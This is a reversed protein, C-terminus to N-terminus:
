KLGLGCWDTHSIRRGGFDPNICKSCGHGRCKMCGMNGSPKKLIDRKMGPRKMVQSKMVPSKMVSSKMSSGMGPKKMVPDRLDEGDDDNDNDPEEADNDTDDHKVKKESKMCAAQESRKLERRTQLAALAAQAHEDLIPPMDESDDLKAAPAPLKAPAPLSALRQDPLPEGNLRLKLRIANAADIAVDAPEDKVPAAAHSCAGHLTHGCSPCFNCTAHQEVPELKPAFKIPEAKLQSEIKPSNNPSDFSHSSISTTKRLGRSAGFVDDFEHGPIDKLLASNKRLPILKAINALGVVEPSEDMNVPPDDEYCAKMSSPLQTADKPYSPISPPVLMDKRSSDETIFLSKLDNVKRYKQLATPLESTFHVKLLLALLWKVSQEDPDVCGFSRARYCALEMKSHFSKSPDKLLLWDSKTFYNWWTHLKCKASNPDDSKKAEHEKDDVVQLMKEDLCSIISVTYNDSYPSDELEHMIIGIEVSTISHKSILKILKEGFSKMMQTLDVNPHKSRASVFRRVSKIENLIFEM